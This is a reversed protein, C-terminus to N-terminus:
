QIAWRLGYFAVRRGIFGDRGELVRTAAIRAKLERGQRGREKADLPAKQAVWGLDRVHALRYGLTHLHTLVEGHQPYHEPEDREEPVFAQNHLIVGGPALVRDLSAIAPATDPLHEFVDLAVVGHVSQADIQDLSGDILDVPTPHHGRWQLRECAFRLSERAVDALVVEFGDHALLLATSGIGSGFDLIRRAGVAQFVSSASVAAWSPGIDTGHWWLLLPITTDTRDYFAAVDEPSEPNQQAWEEDVREQAAFVRTLMEPYSQGSFQSWDELLSVLAPRALSTDDPRAQAAQWRPPATHSAITAAARLEARSLARLQATPSGTVTM